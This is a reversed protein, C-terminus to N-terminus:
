AAASKAVHEWSEKVGSLMKYAENIGYGDDRKTSLELLMDVAKYFMDLNEAVEGGAEHDINAKLEKVIDRTKNTYINRSRVDGETMFGKAKDLYNLSGDYMLLVVKMSEAYNNAQTEM